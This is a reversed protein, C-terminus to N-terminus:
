LDVRMLWWAELRRAGVADYLKQAGENWDLVTWEFRGCGRDTAIERLRAMMATGIGRRRADPHVFLDELYLTSRARFTSYTEFHAAYAVVRGQDEALLLEFRPEPGFADVLLRERAAEDPPPLREFDALALVLELFAPGDAPTARRITM